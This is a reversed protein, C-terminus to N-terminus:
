VQVAREPEKGKSSAKRKKGATTSGEYDDDVSYESQSSSASSSMSRDAAHRPARSPLPALRRARTTVKVPALRHVPAASSHGEGVYGSSSPYPNGATKTSAVMTPADDVVYGSPSPYRNPQNSESRSRGRVTPRPLSRLTNGTVQLDSSLANTGEIRGLHTTAADVGMVTTTASPQHQNSVVYPPLSPSGWLPFNMTATTKYDPPPFSPLLLHPPVSTCVPLGINKYDPSLLCVALHTLPLPTVSVPLYTVAPVIPLLVQSASPEGVVASNAGCEHHEAADTAATATDEIPEPTTVAEAEVSPQSGGLFAPVGEEAENAPLLYGSPATPYEQIASRDCQWPDQSVVNAAFAADVTATLPEPTTVSEVPSNSNGVSPADTDDSDSAPSSHAPLLSLMNGGYVEEHVSDRAQEFLLSFQPPKKFPWLTPASPPGSYRGSHTTRSDALITNEIPELTLRGENIYSFDQLLVTPNESLYQFSEMDHFGMLDLDDGLPPLNEAM